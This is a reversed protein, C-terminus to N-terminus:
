QPRRQREAIREANPDQIQYDVCWCGMDAYEGTMRHTWGKRALCRVKGLVDQFHLGVTHGCTACVEDVIKESM